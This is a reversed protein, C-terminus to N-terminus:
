EQATVRPIIHSWFIYGITSILLIIFGLTYLAVTFPQFMGVIGFVIGGILIREIPRFVTDPLKNNWVTAAFITLNIFAIIVGIFILIFPIGSLITNSAKTKPDLGDVIPMAALGMVWLLVAIGLLLLLLRKRKANM